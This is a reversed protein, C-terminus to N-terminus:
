PNLAALIADPADRELEAFPVFPDPEVEDRGEFHHEFIMVDQWAGDTYGVQKLTGMEEFGMKEHFGVSKPNPLTVYAYVNHVHQLRLIDMVGRYLKQAMGKGHRDQDLYISLEASYRYAAQGRLPSAYALGLVRGEEEWVLYPYESLTQGIKQVFDSKSDLSEQFTIASDIYQSYISRIDEVDRIEALRITM